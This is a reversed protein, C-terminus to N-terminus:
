ATRPRAPARRRDRTPRGSTGTCPSTSRARRAQLNHRLNASPRPQARGTPPRRAGVRPPRRGARPLGTGRRWRAAPPATPPGGGAPTTPPIRRLPRLASPRPPTLARRAYALLFPAPGVGSPQLAVVNDI